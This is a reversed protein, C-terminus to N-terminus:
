WGITTSGDRWTIPKSASARIRSEPPASNGGDANMGAASRHPRITGSPRCTSRSATASAALHRPPEVGSAVEVILTLM